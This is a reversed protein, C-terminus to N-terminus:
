GRKGKEKQMEVERRIKMKTTLRVQERRREQYSINWV